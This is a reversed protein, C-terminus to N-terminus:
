SRVKGKFENIEKLIARRRRMEAEAGPQERANEIQEISNKAAYRVYDDPDSLGEKLAALASKGGVGAHGLCAAAVRRVHNPKDKALMATMAPVVQDSYPVLRSLEQVAMACVTADGDKLTQFHGALLDAVSLVTLAAPMELEGVDFDRLKELLSEIRQRVEASPPAKLAERLFPKADNGLKQLELRAQDRTPFAEHNLEALLKDVRKRELPKPRLANVYVTMVAHQKKSVAKYIGSPVHLQWDFDVPKKDFSHQKGPGPLLIVERVPDKVAAFKRLAENLARADGRYFFNENGNVWYSYVRTKLNVVGVVGVAWDPQNTAPANGFREEALAFATAPLALLLAVATTGTVTKM